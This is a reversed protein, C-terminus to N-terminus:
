FVRRRLKCIMLVAIHPSLSSFNELQIACNCKNKKKTQKQLWFAFISMYIYIYIKYNYIYLKDTYIQTLLILYQSGPECPVFEMLWCADVELVHATSM